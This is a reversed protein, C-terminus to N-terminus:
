IGKIKILYNIKPIIILNLNILIIILYFQWGWLKTYFLSKCLVSLLFFFYISFIIYVHLSFFKKKLINITEMLIFLTYFFIIYILTMNNLNSFFLVSLDGKIYISINVFWVLFIFLILFMEKRDCNLLKSKLLFLDRLDELFEDIIETLNPKQINM